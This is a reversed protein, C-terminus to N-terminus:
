LIYFQNERTDNVEKLAHEHSHTHTYTDTHTHTHTRTRRSGRFGGANNMHKTPVRFHQVHRGSKGFM